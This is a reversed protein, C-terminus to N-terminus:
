PTSRRLLAINLALERVVADTGNRFGVLILIVIMPVLATAVVIVWIHQQTWIM